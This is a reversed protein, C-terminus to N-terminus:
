LWKERRKASVSPSYGITAHQGFDDFERSLQNNKRGTSVVEKQELQPESLLQVIKKYM